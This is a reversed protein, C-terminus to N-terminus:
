RKDHMSASSKPMMDVEKLLMVMANTTPGIKFHVQM